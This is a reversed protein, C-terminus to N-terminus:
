RGAWGSEVGSLGLVLPPQVRQPYVAPLVVGVAARHYSEHALEVHPAHVLSAPLHEPVLQRHQRLPVPIVSDFLHNFSHTFKRLPFPPPPPEMHRTTPPPLPTASQDHPSPTRTTCTGYIKQEPQSRRTCVHQCTKTSARKRAAPTGGTPTHLCCAHAM